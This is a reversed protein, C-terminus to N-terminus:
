RPSCIVRTCALYGSRLLEGIFKPDGRRCDMNVTIKWGNFYMRKVSLGLQSLSGQVEALTPKKLESSKFGYNIMRWCVLGHTYLNAMCASPFFILGKKRAYDAIMSKIDGTEVDYQVGPKMKNVPVKVRREIEEVRLGAERLKELIGITVRLTGAVVGIAGSDAALDLIKTYEREALGPIIPRFFLFPKLGAERLNRITELRREPSPVRPELIDSAELTIITVLPSVKGRSIESLRSTDSQNLFMKTSFQVPNGLFRYVSELYDFTKEKVLQHFPETVSGFALYTGRIGPIFYKNSLLSYVLQLGTLPYPKLEPKFGMDYVYCYRCENVCGIGTHITLGCPRPARKAHYDKEAISRESKSLLSGIEEKLRLKLKLSEVVQEM